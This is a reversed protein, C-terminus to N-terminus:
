AEMDDVVPQVSLIEELLQDRAMRIRKTQRAGTNASVTVRRIHCLDLCWGHCGRRAMWRLNGALRFRVGQM